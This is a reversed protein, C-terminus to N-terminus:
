DFLDRQNLLPPKHQVQVEMGTYGKWFANQKM